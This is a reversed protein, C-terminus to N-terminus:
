DFPVIPSTYIRDAQTAVEYSFAPIWFEKIVQHIPALGANWREFPVSKKSDELVNLVQRIRALAVPSDLRVKAHPCTPCLGYADCLRGVIQGPVPSNFPDACQWGPTTAGPDGTEALVRPDLSGNSAIWRERLMQVTAVVEAYRSRASGNTYHAMTTTSSRHQLFDMVARVDGGFLDHALTAVTARIRRFGIRPLGHRKQFIKIANNVDTNVGTYATTAFSRVERKQANNGPMYLWFDNAIFPDAIPRLDNTWSKVSAVLESPGFRDDSAMYSQTVYRKVRAKYASFIIRKSGLINREQIGEDIKLKLLTGANFATLVCLQYAFPLLLIATPHLLGYIEAASWDQIDDYLAEDTLKISQMAPLSPGFQRQLKALLLAKSQRETLGQPSQHYVADKRPTGLNALLDRGEMLLATRESILTYAEELEIRVANLFAGFTALDFPETKNEANGSGAYPAKRLRCNSPLNGEDNRKMQEIIAALSSRWHRATETPVLHKGFEDRELTWADFRDFLRVDFAGFSISKPPFTLTIWRIFGYRLAQWRTHRTSREKTVHSQAFATAFAIAFTTEFHLFVGCDLRQDPGTGNSFNIWLSSGSELDNHELWYPARDEKHTAPVSIDDFRSM